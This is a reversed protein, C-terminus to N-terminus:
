AHLPSKLHSELDAIADAAGVPRVALQRVDNDVRELLAHRMEHDLGLLVLSLPQQHGDPQRLASVLFLALDFQLAGQVLRLPELGHTLGGEEPEALAGGLVGVPVDTDLVDERQRVVGSEAVGTRFGYGSWSSWM